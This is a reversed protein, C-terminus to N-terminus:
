REVISQYTMIRFKDQIDTANPFSQIMLVGLLEELPDIWFGTGFFGSWYIAGESGLLDGVVNPSEMVAFGLGFGGSGPAVLGSPIEGIHDSTMFEVTVPSLIRVGDLEGGNLIMQLFRSYDRTTSALGAGGPFYTRQEGASYTASYTLYRDAVTGELETVGNPSPAYLSALRGAKDSPLYFYTDEMGLPEFIRERLFEDYSMGSVVEVLRGLVDVNLGYTFAAGPQHMLPLRGLRTVLDEITGAHEALGDGIGADAYLGSLLNQAPSPAFAPSGLFRYTIGSTHTLLHRITVPRESPVRDFVGNVTDTIHLVDLSRLEPLYLGVPDNLRFHGEEYLMMVAVSSIPKTMSAIRFIADTEMSRGDDEDAMGYARLHAQGGRRAILTVVGSVQGRDVYGQIVQELRTLRETSLGVSEPAVPALGQAWLAPALFSALLVTAAAVRFRM